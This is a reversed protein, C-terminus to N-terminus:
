SEASQAALQPYHRSLDELYRPSEAVAVDLFCRVSPSQNATRWALALPRYPLPGHLPIFRVGKRSLNIFSTPLLASGAGSAVLALITQIRAVEDVIPPEIRHMRFLEVVDAYTTAAASRTWLIMPQDALLSPALRRHGALAHDECVVAALPDDLLTQITLSPEDVPGRLFGIDIRHAVLQATQEATDLEAVELKVEPYRRRHERMVYALVGDVAAQLAGVHLHGLQGTAARRAAAFAREAHTLALTAEALLAHGADTLEIPRRSRDILEVGLQRELKQIQQSLPPQAIHLREAARGFHREEAVTVFYRLLRLEPDTM